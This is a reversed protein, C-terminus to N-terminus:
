VRGSYSKHFVSKLLADLSGSSDKVFTLHIEPSQGSNVGSQKPVSQLSDQSQRTVTLHIEPALPPTDCFHEFM